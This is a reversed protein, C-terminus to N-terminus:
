TSFTVSSKMKEEIRELDESDDGFIAISGSGVPLIVGHITEGSINQAETIAQNPMLLITVPGNRGQVVLHPVSEGNIICSQAYTILGASHDLTAVSAPVVRALRDEPVATDTNNFAYPEHELHAVIQDALSPQVLRDAQMRFGFVAAIAVTAAVALWAPATLRRRPLVAVNGTDPTELEPMELPPVPISLAKGIKADLELMEQHFARCSVCEAVHDNAEASSPDAAMVEMAKECTMM